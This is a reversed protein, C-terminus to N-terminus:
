FGTRPLQNPRAWITTVWNAGGVVWENGFRGGVDVRNAFQQGGPLNDRVRVFVMPTEVQTFGARVTGFVLTFSTIYENSRLGLAAPRTDIVNNVTTSLNDAIVRTDGRNTTAIIKSRLSQNYTGTVIRELRVAETPLVDRWYFDTLPVTSDNRVRRIEFRILDGAMAEHNGTKRITVGTNASYNRFERRIIQTAFEIEIDLTETSLRYWQPAQVERVIYRGLPLPRSVARGDTGSVFRDVLNGTRHHFVEFVAGALPTGAPLGNVENDDGSIKLIQIQGM